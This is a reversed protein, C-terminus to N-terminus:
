LDKRSFTRRALLIPIATWLTFGVLAAIKALNGGFFQEFVAGSYGMLAAADMQMLILNRGLDIPNIFNFASGLYQLNYESFNFLVLLLVGDLVATLLFWAILGFTTGKAKDPTFQAVWLGLATFACTLGISVLILWMSISNPHLILLPIGMGLGVSLCMGISQAGIEGMLISSRKIPQVAMFEIFDSANYHYTIAQLIAVLPVILLVVTLISAQTKEAEQGILGIGFTTVLLLLAFFILTKSRLLDRLIYLGITKM